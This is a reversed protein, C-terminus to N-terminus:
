EENESTKNEIVATGNLLGDVLEKTIGVKGVSKLQRLDALEGSIFKEGIIVDNLSDESIEMKQMVLKSIPKYVEVSLGGHIAGIELQISKALSKGAKGGLFSIKKAGIQLTCPLDKRGGVSTMMNVYSLLSGFSNKTAKQLENETNFTQKAITENKFTVAIELPKFNTEM